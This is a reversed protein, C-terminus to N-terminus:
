VESTDEENNDGLIYKAHALAVRLHSSVQTDLMDEEVQIILEALADVLDQHKPKKM